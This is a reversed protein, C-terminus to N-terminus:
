GILSFVPLYILTVGFSDLWEAFAQRGDFRRLAADDVVVIDGYELIANGNPQMFQSAEHFFNFFEVTNSAENLANAYMVGNLGSLFNLTVNPTQTSRTIEICPEYKPNACDPLKFGAEDFFKVRFPDVITMFNIYSQCYAINDPTFKEGAPRIMKKWTMKGEPLRDRVAPGIASISATPTSHVEINEKIEKYTILPRFKILVQVLDLEPEELSKPQGGGVTHRPLTEGTQCFTKWINSVTVRSM